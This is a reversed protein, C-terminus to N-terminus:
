IQILISIWFVTIKVCIFFILFLSLTDNLPLSKSEQVYIVITIKVQILPTYDCKCTWQFWMLWHDNLTIGIFITKTCSKKFVAVWFDQWCTMSMHGNWIHLYLSSIYLIGILTSHCSFFGYRCRHTVYWPAFHEFPGLFWGTCVWEHWGMSIVIFAGKNKFFHSHLGNYVM